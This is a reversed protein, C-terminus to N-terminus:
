RFRFSGSYCKIMKQTCIVSLFFIQLSLISSLPSVLRKILVGADINDQSKLTYRQYPKLDILENNKSKKKKLIKNM